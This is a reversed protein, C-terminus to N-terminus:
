PPSEGFTIPSVFFRDGNRTMKIPQDVCGLVFTRNLRQSNITASTISAPPVGNSAADFGQKMYGLIVVTTAQTSMAYASTEFDDQASNPGIAVSEEMPTVNLPVSRYPQTILPWQQNNHSQRQTLGGLIQIEVDNSIDYDAVEGIWFEGLDFTCQSSTAWTSGTVNNPITVIGTDINTAPFVWIIAVAGNPLKVTSATLANGGLAVAGGSLKGSITIAVGAPIAVAATSSAPLLLAACGAKITKGLTGTLVMSQGTSTAGSFWQMRCADAPRGNTLQSQASVFAAGSGGTIAWSIGTPRNYSVRM